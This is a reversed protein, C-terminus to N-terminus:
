TLLVSSLGDCWVNVDVGREALLPFEDFIIDEIESYVELDTSSVLLDLGLGELKLFKKALICDVQVWVDASCVERFTDIDFIMVELFIQEIKNSAHINSLFGLLWAPGLTVAPLKGISINTLTLFRINSNHELKIDLTLGPDLRCPVGFEVEKLSGGITRFLRNLAKEDKKDLLGLCLNQIHSIEFPSQPGLFWDVYLDLNGEAALELDLHSLNSRERPEDDEQNGRTLLHQLIHADNSYGLRFTLSTLSPLLLVWRLSQRLDVTLHDMELESLHISRLRNLKRIVAAPLSQDRERAQWFDARVCVELERIYNALHPSDLLAQALKNCRDEELVFTVARFLLRQSSPLWSRCVLSCALLADYDEHLDDTIADILEQPLRSAGM